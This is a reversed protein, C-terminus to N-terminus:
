IHVVSGAMEWFAWRMYPWWQQWQWQQGCHSVLWEAWSDWLIHVSGSFQLHGDPSRLDEYTLRDVVNSWINKSCFFSMEKEHNVRAVELSAITEEAKSLQSVAARKGELAYKLRDKLHKTRKLTYWEGTTGSYVVQAWVSAPVRESNTPKAEGEYSEHQKYKMLFGTQSM